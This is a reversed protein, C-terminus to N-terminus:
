PACADSPIPFFSLPFPSSSHTPFWSSPLPSPHSVPERGRASHGTGLLLQAAHPPSVARALLPPGSSSSGSLASVGGSTASPLRRSPFRASPSKESPGPRSETEWAATWKPVVVGGRRSLVMKWKAEKGVWTKSWFDMESGGAASFARVDPSRPREAEQSDMSASASHHRSSAGGLGPM